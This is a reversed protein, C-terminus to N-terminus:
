LPLLPPMRMDSAETAEREECECESECGGDCCEDGREPPRRWLNPLPPLPLPPYADALAGERWREVSDYGRSGEVVLALAPARKLPRPPLLPAAVPCSGLFYSAGLSWLASSTESTERLSTGRM